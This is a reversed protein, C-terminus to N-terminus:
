QFDEPELDRPVESALIVAGVNLPFDRTLPTFIIDGVCVPSHSLSCVGSAKAVARKWRQATYCFRGPERWAVVIASASPQEVVCIRALADTHM